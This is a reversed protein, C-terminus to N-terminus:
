SQQVAQEPLFKPLFGGSGPIRSNQHLATGNQSGQHRV